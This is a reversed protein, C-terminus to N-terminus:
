NCEIYATSRTGDRVQLYWTYSKGAHRVAVKYRGVQTLDRSSYVQHIYPEDSDIFTKDYQAAVALPQSAGPPYVDVWANNRGRGSIAVDLDMGGRRENTGFQCGSSGAARGVISAVNGCATLVLLLAMLALYRKM